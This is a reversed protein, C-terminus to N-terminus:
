IPVKTITMAVLLMSRNETIALFDAMISSQKSQVRMDDEGHSLLVPAKYNAALFYPSIQKLAEEKLGDPTM